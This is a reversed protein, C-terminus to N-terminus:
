VSNESYLCSSLRTIKKFSPSEKESIRVIKSVSRPTGPVCVIDLVITQVTQSSLVNQNFLQITSDCDRDKHMGIVCGLKAETL